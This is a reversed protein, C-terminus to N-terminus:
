RGVSLTWREISGARGRASSRQACGDTMRNRLQRVGPTAEDRGFHFENGNALVDTASYGPDTIGAGRDVIAGVIPVIETKVVGARLWDCIAFRLDCIWNSGFEDAGFDGAAAGDKGCVDIM